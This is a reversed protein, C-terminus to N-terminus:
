RSIRVSQIGVVVALGAIAEGSVLSPFKLTPLPTHNM